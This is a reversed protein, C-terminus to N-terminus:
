YDQLLAAIAARTEEPLASRYRLSQALLENYTALASRSDPDYGYESAWAEFTPFDLVSADRSLSALVDAACPAVLRCAVSLPWGGVGREVAAKVADYVDTTLRCTHASHWRDGRQVQVYATGMRWPERLVISGRYLVEVHWFLLSNLLKPDAPQGVFAARMTVGLAALAASKERAVESEEKVVPLRKNMTSM